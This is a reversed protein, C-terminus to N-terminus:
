MKWFIHLFQLNLFLLIYLFNFNYFLNSGVTFFLIFNSYLTEAFTNGNNGILMITATSWYFCM